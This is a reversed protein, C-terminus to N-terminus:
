LDAVIKAVLEENIETHCIPCTNSKSLREAYISKLESIQENHTKLVSATEQIKKDLGQIQQGLQKAQVVVNQKNQLKVFDSERSLAKQLKDFTLEAERLREGILLLEKIKYKASLGQLQQSLREVTQLRKTQTELLGIRRYIVNISSQLQSLKVKKEKLTKLEAEKQTVAKYRQELAVIDVNKLVAYAARTQKGRSVIQKMETSLESAKTAFKHKAVLMQYPTQLDVSLRKLANEKDAIEKKLQNITDRLAKLATLAAEREQLLKMKIMASNLAQELDPLKVFEKEREQFKELDKKHMNLETTKRKADANSNRVAYDAYHVGYPIGLMKARNPGSMSTFFWAEGQTSFNIGVDDKAKDSLHIDRIGLVSQIYPLGTTNYEDVTGKNPDIVIYGNFGRDKREVKRSVVFGNSLTATIQFYNAHHNILERPQVADCYYLEQLARKVASKGSNSEGALINLHEDWEFFSKEHSQFNELDLRVIHYPGVPNFPVEIADIADELYKKARTKVDTPLGKSKSVNDLIEAIKLGGQQINANYVKSRIDAWFDKKKQKVLIHERSLVDQGPLACKFYIDETHITLDDHIEIIMFKPMRSIENNAASMRTVSGPNAFIKGGIKTTSYGIHDHGNLTIDAQTKPAIEHITTHAFKKGYSKDMLMGHVMHIHIDGQKKDIIYASKDLEDDINKEYHSGSITVTFGSKDTFVVPEYKSVLKIFSSVELLHLSTKDFSGIQGGVLEHNGAIGIIPILGFPTISDQFKKEWDQFIEALRESSLKPKDFFDGLELIADVHHTKTYEKIEQLKNRQTVFYDDTRYAPPNESYHMDGICLFRLM